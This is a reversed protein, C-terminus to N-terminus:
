LDSVTRVLDRNPPRLRPMVPRDAPRDDGFFIAFGIAPVIIWITENRM